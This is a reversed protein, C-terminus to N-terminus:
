STEPTGGFSALAVTLTAPRRPSRLYAAIRPREEFRRKFAALKEFRDITRQSFPRVYDLYHWMVFDALTLADGVWYGEGKANQELLRELQQMVVPLREDEYQARKQDFQPDWYLFGLDRWADVFSEEVIDCRTREGETRGCLDHTRALHRYIAHSHVIRLDGEEYLPLQGFPLSPKLDAWEELAVRQERYPTQTEELMLRVIEARGRVDFYKLLPM